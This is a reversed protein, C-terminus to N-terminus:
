AMGQIVPVERTRPDLLKACTYFRILNLDMGDVWKARLDTLLAEVAEATESYMPDM